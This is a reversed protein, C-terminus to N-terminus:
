RAVNNNEKPKIGYAKLMCPWCILHETKGFMELVRDYEPCDKDVDAFDKLTFKAGIVGKTEFGCVDCVGEYERFIRDM